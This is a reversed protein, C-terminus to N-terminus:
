SGPSDLVLDAVKGGICIVTAELHSLFDTAERIKQGM